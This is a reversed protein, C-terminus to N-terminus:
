ITLRKTTVKQKFQQWKAERNMTKEIGQSRLGQAIHNSDTFAGFVFATGLPLSADINRKEGSVQGL